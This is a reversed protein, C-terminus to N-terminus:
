TGDMVANATLVTPAAALAATSATAATAAALASPISDTNTLQVATNLTAGPTYLATKAVAIAAVIDAASSAGTFADLIAFQTVLAAAQTTSLGAAATADVAFTDHLLKWAQVAADSTAAATGATSGGRICALLNRKQAHTLEGGHAMCAQLDALATSYITM